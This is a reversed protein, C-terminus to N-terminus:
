FGSIQGTTANIARALDHPSLEIQGLKATIGYGCTENLGTFM